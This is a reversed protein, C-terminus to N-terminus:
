LAAFLQFYQAVVAETSFRAIVTERCTAAIQLSRPIAAVASSLASGLEEANGPSFLFGTKLPEIVEPVGGVASSVVVLGAMAAELIAMPLAESKSTLVFGDAAYLWRPVDNRFGLFHVNGSIGLEAALAEFKPRLEGDGVIALTQPIAASRCSLAFGRLLTEQDKVPRFNAVHLWLWHQARDAAVGLEARTQQRSNSAPSGIEIPNGVVSVNQRAIGNEILAEATFKSVASFKTHLAALTKLKAGFFRRRNIHHIDGHETGLHPVRSLKSALAAYFTSDLLHSNLIDARKEKALKALRFPLGIDLSKASPLAVYSVGLRALRDSQLQETLWGQRLTAVTVEKGAAAFGEALTLVVREAGGPGGTEIFLLIREFNAPM